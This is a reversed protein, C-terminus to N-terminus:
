VDEGIPFSMSHPHRRRVHTKLNILQSSAFSCGSEKCEFPKLGTHVRMHVRCNSQDSAIYGCEPHPCFYFRKKKDKSGQERIQQHHREHIKMLSPKFTKYPCHPEGCKMEWTLIHVDATGDSNTRMQTLAEMTTTTSPPTEEDREERVRKKSTSMHPQTVTVASTTTATSESTPPAPASPVTFSSPPPYFSAPSLTPHSFAYPNYSSPSAYYPQYSYSYDNIGERYGGQIYYAPTGQTGPMLPPPRPFAYPKPTMPYPQYSISSPHVPTDIHQGSPQQFYPYYSPSVAVTPVHEFTDRIGRNRHDVGPTEVTSSRYGSWKIGEFARNFHPMFTSPLELREGVKNTISNVSGNIEPSTNNLVERGKSDGRRDKSGDGDGMM